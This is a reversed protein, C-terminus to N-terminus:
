PLISFDAQIGKNVNKFNDYLDTRDSGGDDLKNKIEVFYKKIM